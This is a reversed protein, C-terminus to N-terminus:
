RQCRPCDFSARQGMIRRRIPTGCYRCPEGTRGYVFYQQQFYGAQGNTGVFDRLTSGGAALAAELTSRIAEVLQTCRTLGLANAPTDPAIGARFLSESAYINGVGVIRHGDMIFSRIPTSRGRTAQHLWPGTFGAELPEIGLRALLGHTPAGAPLWLVMGFRRPDRLRLARAGFLLDVHDHTEPPTDAPLIRLSGSMGLHILVQGTAFCLLLYKARREVALLPLGTAADALLAPVPYRLRPQRILAGTLTAGVLEPAIGRRTTEVEPLEPM